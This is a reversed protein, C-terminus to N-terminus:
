LDDPGEATLPSLDFPADPSEPSVPPAVGAESYWRRYEADLAARAADPTDAGDISKVPAFERERVVEVPLVSPAAPFLDFLFREYKRGMREGFSGDPDLCLIAKKAVHLPLDAALGDRLFPLTFAHVAISGLRFTLAGDPDRRKAAEASLESYEVIAPRGDLAVVVGVRESAQTKVM